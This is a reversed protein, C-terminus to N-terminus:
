ALPSEMCLLFSSAHLFSPQTNTRIGYAFPTYPNLRAFFKSVTTLLYKHFTGLSLNEHSLDLFQNVRVWILKRSRPESGATGQTRARDPTAWCGSVVRSRRWSCRPSRRTWWPGRKGTRWCCSAPSASAPLSPSPWEVIQWVPVLFWCDSNLETSLHFALITRM